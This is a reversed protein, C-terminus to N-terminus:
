DFCVDNFHLGYLELFSMIDEDYTMRQRFRRVRMRNNFALYIDSM